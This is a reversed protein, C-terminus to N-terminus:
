AAAGGSIIHHRHVGIGRAAVRRYRAAAIAAGYAMGRTTAKIGAM